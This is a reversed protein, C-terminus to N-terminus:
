IYEKVLKFYHKLNEPLKAYFEETMVTGLYCIKLLVIFETEDLAMLVDYDIKYTKEM